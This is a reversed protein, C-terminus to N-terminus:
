IVNWYIQLAAMNLKLAIINLVFFFDFPWNQKVFFSVQLHNCISKEKEILELRKVWSRCQKSAMLWLTVNFFLFVHLLLDVDFSFMNPVAAM